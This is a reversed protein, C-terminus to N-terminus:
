LVKSADGQREEATQTQAGRKAERELQQTVYLEAFAFAENLESRGVAEAHIVYKPSDVIVTFKDVNGTATVKADKDFRLLNEINKLAM